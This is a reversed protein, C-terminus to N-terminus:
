FDQHQIKDAPMSFQEPAIEQPSPHSLPCYSVLHYNHEGHQFVLSLTQNTASKAESTSESLEFPLGCENFSYHNSSDFKLLNELRGGYSGISSSLICCAGALSGDLSWM